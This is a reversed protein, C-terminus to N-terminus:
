VEEEKCIIDLKSKEMAKYGISNVSYNRRIYDYIKQKADEKNEAKVYLIDGFITEIIKFGWHNFTAYYLIM